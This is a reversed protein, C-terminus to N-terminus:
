YTCNGNVALSFINKRLSINDYYINSSQNLDNGKMDNRDYDNVSQQMLNIDSIVKNNINEFHILAVDDSVVKVTHDLDPSREAVLTDHVESKYHMFVSFFFSIFFSISTFFLAMLTSIKISYFIPMASYLVISHKVLSGYDTKFHTTKYQVNDYQVTSYQSSRYQM